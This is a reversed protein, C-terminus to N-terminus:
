YVNLTIGNAPLLTIIMSGRGAEGVSCLGAGDTALLTVANDKATHIRVRFFPASVSYDTAVVGTEGQLSKLKFERVMVTVVVTLQIYAFQEGICRHRGAGFPLYTSDAGTSVLGYGYDMKEKEEDKPDAISEWRHPDWTEANPFYVDSKGMTAPAALLVHSPPIVWNTGEVPLSNKVKRMISHIPPHLRLTERIVHMVFPLKQINDYTLPAEGIVRLQEQYLEELINPEAALHLMIWSSTVSSSHQGAMLLAIMMHAVETDPVPKGDKYTSRMLNWLMDKSDEDGGKSRRANIIDSYIHTMKRQAVDRRRNQPLPFWPLMFNIPQFGDDLDHYLKAFTTDLKERVEKGQLSRSATFITIQAMTPPIKVIGNSGKFDPNRKIFGRVEDEMLPVHARLADSTLGYKIFQRQNSHVPLDAPPTGKEAGHIKCQACRLRCGQRFCAYMSRLLDRRCQRRQTERELHISQRKIRPLCHGEKWSTHFHIYRWVISGLHINGFGLDQIITRPFLDRVKSQCDFFFKFPDIGYTVTSGILPLWHFVLPPENPNKLLVQQLVTTIVALVLVSTIAAVVGLAHESLTSRILTLLSM